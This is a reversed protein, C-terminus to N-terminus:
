RADVGARLAACGTRHFRRHGSPRAVIRSHHQHTGHRSVPPPPRRALLGGRLRCSSHQSLSLGARQLPADPCLPRSPGARAIVAGSRRRAIARALSDYAGVRGAALLPTRTAHCVHQPLHKEMGGPRANWRPRRKAARHPCRVRRRLPLGGHRVRTGLALARRCRRGSRATRDLALGRLGAPRRHAAARELHGHGPPLPLHRRRPVSKGALFQRRQCLPPDSQPATGHRRSQAPLSSGFKWGRSLHGLLIGARFGTRLRCFSHRGGLHDEAATRFCHARHGLGRDLGRRIRDMHGAALIERRARRSRLGRHNDRRRLRTRRLARAVRDHNAGGPGNKGRCSRWPM